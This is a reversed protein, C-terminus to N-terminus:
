LRDGADPIVRDIFLKTLVPDFQTGAGNQLEEVAEKVPLSERYTQKTIMADYANTIAIVRSETPIESGTLQRPYGTGDMREHHCLVIEALESFESSANLIRYGIEAHKRIEEKELENM